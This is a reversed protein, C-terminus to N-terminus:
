SDIQPYNRHTLRDVVSFKLPKVVLGAGLLAGLMLIITDSMVAALGGMFSGVFVIENGFGIAFFIFNAVIILYSFYLLPKNM